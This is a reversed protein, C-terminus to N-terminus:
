IEIQELSKRGAAMGKSLFSQMTKLLQKGNLGELSRLFDAIM